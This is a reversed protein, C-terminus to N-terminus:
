LATYVTVAGFEPKLEQKPPTKVAKVNESPLFPSLQAKEGNSAAAAGAPPLVTVSVELLALLSRIALEEVATPAPEIL